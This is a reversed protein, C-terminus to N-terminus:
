IWIWIWGLGPWRAEGHGGRFALNNNECGSKLQTDMYVNRKVRKIPKWIHLYSFIAGTGSNSITTEHTSAVSLFSMLLRFIRSRHVENILQGLAIFHIM